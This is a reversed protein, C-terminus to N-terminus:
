QAEYPLTEMIPAGTKQEALFPTLFVYPYNKVTVVIRDDETGADARQVSVMSPTLSYFTPTGPAPATPQGYLVYNQIATGTGDYSNVAGYRVAARVREVISQHLFLAQGFDFTSFLIMLFVLLVLSSEILL